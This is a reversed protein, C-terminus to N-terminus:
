RDSAAAPPGDPGLPLRVVFESGRGEGESHATVSGGHMEVLRRVLTLGIGLSGHRRTLSRDGQMFLDFVRPLLEARIGVGTDRVRVVAEGNHNEVALTIHGGPETYQAANNLLNAIVQTLRVGDAHVAVEGPPLVVDLRHRRADIIPRATEVARAVVAALDVREKLIGIKGRRIRSVELLDDVLRVLHTVQREILDRAQAAVAPQADPIHLMYLANRIPALPNRLEHALMALFEDKRRDSERLEQELRQRETVATVVGTIRQAQELEAVRQELDANARRLAAEARERAAVERQLEDPSRMALVRPVLPVLAFVTAWSALATVIKVVAALREMPAYTVVVDMFHTFGCGLIFLGFLAFVGPFPLDRRRM